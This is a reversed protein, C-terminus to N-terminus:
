TYEAMHLSQPDAEEKMRTGGFNAQFASVIAKKINIVQQDEERSFLTVPISGDETQVFQFWGTMVLEPDGNENESKIRELINGSFIADTVQLDYLIARQGGYMGVISISSIIIIDLSHALGM